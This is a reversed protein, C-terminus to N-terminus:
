WIEGRLWERILVALLYLAALAVVVLAGWLLVSFLSGAITM